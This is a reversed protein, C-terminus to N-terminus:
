KLKFDITIDGCQEPTSNESFKYKKASSVALAILHSDTTTSGKQTYNATTVKGKANICINVVVRGTQQSNDTISPAYILGRNGLGKGAKGKGKTIGELASADPHGSPDGKSPAGSGNANKLLNNFKSKAASKAAAKKAAEEAAQREAEEAAKRKADAVARAKAKEDAAKKRAAEEAKEKAIEAESKGVKKEKKKEVVKEKTAVVTSEKELTKSVVKKAEPKSSSKPQKKVPLKAHPQAAPAAKPKQEKPQATSPAPKTKTREKAAVHGIAVQIGEFQPKEPEKSLANVIPFLLLLILFFHFLLSISLSDMKQKKEHIALSNSM